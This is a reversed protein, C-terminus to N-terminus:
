CHLFTHHYLWLVTFNMIHIHTIMSGYLQLAMSHYLRLATSSYFCLFPLFKSGYTENDVILSLLERDADKQLKLPRKQQYSFGRGGKWHQFVSLPCRWMTVVNFLPCPTSIHINSILFSVQEVFCTIKLSQRLQKQGHNHIHTIMPDYLWLAMSYDCLWLPTSNM